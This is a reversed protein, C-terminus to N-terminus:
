SKDGPMWNVDIVYGTVSGVNKALQFFWGYYINMFKGFAGSSGMYINNNSIIFFAGILLFVIIFVALKM